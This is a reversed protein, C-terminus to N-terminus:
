EQAHEQFTQYNSVGSTNQLLRKGRIKSLIKRFHKAPIIKSMVLLAAYTPPVLLIVSFLKILLIPVLIKRKFNQDYIVMMIAVLSLSVAVFLMVADILNSNSSKFPQFKIVLAMTFVLLLCALPIYVVSGYIVFLLHNLFRLALYLAAFQRLYRPNNKFCGHFADMFINLSLKCSDSFCCCDLVKQFCQFPYLALLAFPLVNFTTLMFIAFLLYPLYEKSTMEITSDYYLYVKNVNQGEMNYAFSPIVLQFSVNLIKVYSLIIFTALANVLSSHINWQKRFYFLCKHFPRWLWVVFQNNDHLKVFFYTIFILLLPYVAIVYDLMLVQYFTLNPHVCLTMYFSRFFNLNWVAYAATILETAYSRYNNFSGSNGHYLLGMNVSYM